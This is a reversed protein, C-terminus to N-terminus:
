FLSIFCSHTSHLALCCDDHGLSELLYRRLLCLNNWGLSIFLHVNIFCDLLPRVKDKFELTGDRYAFLFSLCIGVSLGMITNFYGSTELTGSSSLVTNQHTLLGSSANFLPWYM